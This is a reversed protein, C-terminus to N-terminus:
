GTASTHPFPVLADIFSTIPPPLSDHSGPPFQVWFSLERSDTTSPINALEISTDREVIM